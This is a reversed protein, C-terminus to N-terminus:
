VVMVYRKFITAVQRLKGSLERKESGSNFYEKLDM